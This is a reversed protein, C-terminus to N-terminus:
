ILFLNKDNYYWKAAEDDPTHIVFEQREPDYTATTNMRKTNTGHSVETLAFCGFYRM